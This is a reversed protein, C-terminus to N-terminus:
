RFDVNQVRPRKMGTLPNAIKGKSRAHLFDYFASVVALRRNISAPSLRDGAKRTSQSSQQEIFEDLTAPTAQTVRLGNSRLFEQYKELDGRYARLTERSQTRGSLHLMFDDIDMIIRERFSFRFCVNRTVQRVRM